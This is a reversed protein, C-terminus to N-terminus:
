SDGGFPCIPCASRTCYGKGHEWLACDLDSSTVGINQALNMVTNEIREYENGDIHTAVQRSDLLDSCALIRRVHIDIVPIDFGLNRFWLSSTKPGIGYVTSVMRRRTEFLDMDTPRGSERVLRVFFCAASVISSSKSNPFRYGTKTLRESIQRECVTPKRAIVSYQILGNLNSVLYLLARGAEESRIQTSALICYVLEVWASLWDSSAQSQAKRLACREVRHLELIERFADLSDNSIRHHGGM